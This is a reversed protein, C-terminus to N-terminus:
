EISLNSIRLAAIMDETVSPIHLQLLKFKEEVDRLLTKRLKLWTESPLGKFAEVLASQATQKRLKMPITDSYLKKIFDLVGDLVNDDYHRFYPLTQLCHYFPNKNGLVPKKFAQYLTDGGLTLGVYHHELLTPLLKDKYSDPAQSELYYELGCMKFKGRLHRYFFADDSILIGGSSALFCTDILYNFYWDDEKLLEPHKSLIDLRDTSFRVECHGEVWFIMDEFLKIREKKYQPPYLFPKVGFSTIGVTIPEEPLKRAQTLEDKLYDVLYHSIIFKTSSIASERESLRMLMPLTTLDIVYASQPDLSLGQSFKKPISVFGDSFPSTLHFLVDLPDNYSVTRSLDTFSIEGRYYKEFAEDRKIKRVDGAEGFHEVMKKVMDEPNDGFSISRIGMGTYPTSDLHETIKAMLGSYKDLIQRIQVKDKKLTLPDTIEAVDMLKKKHLAKAVPDYEITESNVDVLSNKHNVQVRVTTSLQVEDFPVPESRSEITLVQFYTQKVLPNDFNKITVRYAMELGLETMGSELAIKAIAFVQQWSFDKGLLEDTLLSRLEEGKQTKFLSVILFYLYNTNTPFKEVGCRCVVSVMTYNGQFLYLRLEARLYMDKPNTTRLHSLVQLLLESRESLAILNDALLNMPLSERKWDHYSEILENCAHLQSVGKLILLIVYKLDLSLDAYAAKLEPISKEIEGIKEENYRYAYGFVIRECIPDSFTKSAIHNSYFETIDINHRHAHNIFELVNRIELDGMTDSQELYREIAQKALPFNGSHIHASYEIIRLSPNKESAFRATFALADQYRKLQTLGVLIQDRLIRDFAKDELMGAEFLEKLKTIASETGKSLYQTMFFYREILMGLGNYKIFETGDIAQYILEYLRCSYSVLVNGSYDPKTEMNITSEARLGSTLALQAVLKWYDINEPTIQDPLPRNEMEARFLIQVEEIRNQDGALLQGCISKFDQHALISSPVTDLKRKEMMLLIAHARESPLGEQLLDAAIKRAKPKDGLRNYSTCARERYTSNSPDLLYSRVHYKFTQLPDKEKVRTLGMLHYVRAELIRRETKKLYSDEIDKLLNQCLVLATHPKFQQIFQEISRLQSNFIHKVRPIKRQSIVKLVVFVSLLFALISVVIVDGGVIIAEILRIIWYLWRPLGAQALFDNVVRTVSEQNAIAVVEGVLTFALFYISRNFYDIRRFAFKILTKLIKM